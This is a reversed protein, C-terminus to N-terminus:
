NKLTALTILTMFILVGGIILMSKMDNAREDAAEEQARIKAIEADYLLKNAEATARTEKLRSKSGIGLEPLVGSIATGFDLVGGTIMGWIDGSGGESPAPSSTSGSSSDNIFNSIDEFSFPDTIESDEKFPSFSLNVQDVLATPSSVVKNM